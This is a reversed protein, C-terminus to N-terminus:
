LELAQRLAGLDSPSGGIGILAIDGNVLFRAQEMHVVIGHARHGGREMLIVARAFVDRSDHDLRSRPGDIVKLNPIVTFVHRIAVDGNGARLNLVEFDADVIGIGGLALVNGNGIRTEAKGARGRIHEVRIGARGAEIELLCALGRDHDGRARVDIKGGFTYLDGRRIHRRRADREAIVLVALGDVQVSAIRKGLAGEEGILGSRDHTGLVRAVTRVIDDRRGIRGNGGVGCATLNAKRRVLRALGGKLGRNGVLIAANQRRTRM